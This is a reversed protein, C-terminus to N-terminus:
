DIGSGAPLGFAILTVRVNFARLRDRLFSATADSEVDTNLALVVEEIGGARVREILSSIAPNKIGEDRMPSLKGMLAHYRGRFAGTKELQVIDSPEEVVCLVRDDRRADTCLACPDRDTETLNGCRRCLRIESETQELAAIVERLLARQRVLKLAIRESSRRGVGPLRGLADMLREM